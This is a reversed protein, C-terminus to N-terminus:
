AVAEGRFIARGDIVECLEPPLLAGDRFTLVVFGSCTNPPQNETYEFQPGHPDALTGTQIGWRRGRYDGFPKCELLHTHGTAISLGGKMTNNYAAHVGGAWRHKVMVPSNSDPNILTSWRMDWRPFHDCLRFYQLGEFDKAQMALAREFRIDHNGINWVLECKTKSVDCAAEIEGLRDSCASLEEKVTPRESWGFPPHRCISVGDFVDGNVIKAKPKVRGIVEILAKHAVTPEGPWYHHDSSIVVCGDAVALHQERPFTWGRDIGWENSAGDSRTELRIGKAALRERRRYVARLDVGFHDAVAQPSGLRHWADVFQGESSVPSPM